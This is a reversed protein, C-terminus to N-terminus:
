KQNSRDSIISPFGCSRDYGSSFAFADVVDVKHIAIFISLHRKVEVDVLVVHVRLSLLVIEVNALNWERADKAAENNEIENSSAVPDESVHTSLLENKKRM